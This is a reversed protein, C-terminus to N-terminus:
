SVAELFGILAAGSPDPTEVRSSSFDITLDLRCIGRSNVLNDIGQSVERYADQIEQKGSPSSIFAAFSMPSLNGTRAQVLSTTIKDKGRKLTEIESDTLSYGCRIELPLNINRVLGEAIMAQPNHQAAAGLSILTQQAEQQTRPALMAKALRIAELITTKGIANPGVIVSIGPTFEVELNELARFNRICLLKLWM